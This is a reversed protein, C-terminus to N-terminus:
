NETLTEPRLTELYRRVEGQSRQFTHGCQCSKALGISGQVAAVLFTAVGVPDLDSRVTGARQGERLAAAVESQWEVCIASIREQFGPDVGAMEQALNNLPCGNRLMEEGEAAARGIVEHLADIPNAHQRLPTVWTDLVREAIIEELVAYGLDLKNRFHHYLAGKTVGASRLIDDMSASQYGSRYIEEAAASLLAARTKEPDRRPAM